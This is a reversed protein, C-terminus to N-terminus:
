NCSVVTLSCTDVYFSTSKDLDNLSYMELALTRGAVNPLYEAEISVRSNYWGSLITADVNSFEDFTYASSNNDFDWLWMDMLDYRTSDTPDEESLVGVYCSLTVATVNVPITVWKGVWAARGVFGDNFTYNGVGGLHAARTGSHPNFGLQAATEIVSTAATDTTDQYWTVGANLASTIPITAGDFNGNDSLLNVTQTTCTGGGTGGTGPVTAGGTGPVTAGGSGLTGGSGPAAGGNGGLKGGSAAKGGFTALAGGSTSLAGGGAVSTRGGNSTVTGGEGSGAEGMDGGTGLVGGAGGFGNGGNGPAEGGESGATGGRNAKGGSAATGGAGGAGVKSYDDLGIIQACATSLGAALALNRLRM